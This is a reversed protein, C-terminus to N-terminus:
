GLLDTRRPQDASALAPRDVPVPTRLQVGRHPRERNYHTTYVRLTHELHRRGIILLWDLCENRITRVFREAYANAKPARVPTQIVTIGESRFVEDFASSFKSDRDRILFRTQELLGSLNLNRAQQTVWAGTPNTTAGAIHVRRSDLEIFFLIYYRRLSLTEVTFFDCALISAAQQRIFQSWSPGIRRPAPELGAALLIRRVSSPSVRHGLKLLEGAIRQYGWRPNERAFRLVLQRVHQELPPRGRGRTPQTWERRVLERHWRLLTQPTVLLGRRRGSPLLRALAALFARDAPRLRPRAAQRRLVALEHRLALLEVEQAFQDRRGSALLRLLAAFALYAFSLLM